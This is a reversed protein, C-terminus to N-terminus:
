LALVVLIFLLYMVGWLIRFHGYRSKREAKTAGVVINTIGTVVWSAILLWLIAQVNQAISIM